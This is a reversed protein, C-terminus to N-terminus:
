PWPEITLRYPVPETTVPVAASIVLVAREIETGLGPLLWEGRGDTVPLREVVVSEGYTVLQVIYSVPLVNDHRVFGNAVWAGEGAEVDDFFGIAEIRINDLCLGPENLGDDTFKDWRLLIQHGAYPTLDIRESVWQAPPPEVGGLLDPEVGSRGSYVPGPVASAGTLTRMHEGELWVWSDGGDISVRVGAYDWGYEIDFWLDFSLAAETVESLDFRHELTSHGLDGRNSWWLYRGSPADTPVLRTTTPAEFEVRLTHGQSGDPDADLVVYEVGYPYVDMIASYPVGDVRTQPEAAVSVGAYAYRGDAVAPDDLLNAVAWDAFLDDFRSGDLAQLVADLGFVSTLPNAVLTRVADVGYREYFYRLILYCSGYHAAIRDPRASWSNIQLGPQRAYADVDTVPPGFGALDEALQSAGENVWAAEGPNQHWHIMHQFEHTLVRLYLQTGPQLANLNMVFMEHENSYPDISRPYSNNAAFYGAARSIRANLVVLRPDGDIGPTRESGFAERVLPYIEKDFARITAQLAEVDVEAGEEVWMQVHDGAALLTAMIEVHGATALDLVWFPKSDGVVHLAHPGDTPYPDRAAQAGERLPMPEERLRQALDSTATPTPRLTAEAHSMTTPSPHPTALPALTPPLPTSTVTPLTVDLPAPKVTPTPAPQWGTRLSCGWLLFLGLLLTLGIALRSRKTLM